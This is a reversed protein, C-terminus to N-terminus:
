CKTLDRLLIQYDFSCKSSGTSTVGIARIDTKALMTVSAPSTLVDSNTVDNIHLKTIWSKPTTTNDAENRTLLTYSVVKSTEVSVHMSIIRADHNAPITFHTQQIGGAGLGADRLSIFGQTSGASSVRLTINGENSNGYTGVQTVFYNNLRIFSQTTPSTVTLGNMNLTETIKNFNSDLGELTLIQAHSGALTDNTSTSIAEITAATTLYTLDVGATWIDEEVSGVNDNHGFRNIISLSPHKGVAIDHFLDGPISKSINILCPM